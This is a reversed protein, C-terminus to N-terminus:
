SQNKVKRSVSEEEKLLKLLRNKEKELDEDTLSNYDEKPKEIQQCLIKLLDINPPLVKEQVKQKAIRLKGTEEDVMYETTTEKSNFGLIHKKLLELTKDDLFKKDTKM